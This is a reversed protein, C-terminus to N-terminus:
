RITVLSPGAICAVGSAAGADLVLAVAWMKVGSLIRGLHNTDLIVRANGAADLSGFTNELMGKIGGYLCLMTLYDPILPIVRGDPLGIGPRVGTWSLGIMYARGGQGPFSLELRRGNPPTDMFWTLHRSGVRLLTSDQYPTFGRIPSADLPNGDPKVRIIEYAHPMTSTHALMYYGVGATPQGARALDVPVRAISSTASLPQIGKRPHARCIWTVQPSLVTYYLDIFAGSPAEFSPEKAGYHVATSQAPQHIAFSTVAGTRPDVRFYGTDYPSKRDMGRVVLLGSDQDLAMAYAYLAPVTSLSTLTTGRVRYFDLDYITFGQHALIWDGDCDRVAAVPRYLPAGAVLTRVAGNPAVDLLCGTRTPQEYTLALYSRNDAGMVVSFPVHGAPLAAVTALVAGSPAVEYLTAPQPPSTFSYAIFRDQPQANAWAPALLFLLAVCAINRM